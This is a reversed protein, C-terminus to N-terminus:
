GVKFYNKKSEDKDGVQNDAKINPRSAPTLGFQQELKLIATELKMIEAVSSEPNAILRKWMQWYICYRTFSAIDAQTLVGQGIVMPLIKRWLKKGEATLEKPVSFDGALDYIPEDKRAKSRWSGRKELVASPTKQPGRKGM